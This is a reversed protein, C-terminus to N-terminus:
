ARHVNGLNPAMELSGRKTSGAGLYYCLSENNILTYIYTYLVIYVNIYSYIYTYVYVHVLICACMNSFSVKMRDIQPLAFTYDMSSPNCPPFPLCVIIYAYELTFICILNFFHMILSSDTNSFSDFLLYCIKLINFSIM